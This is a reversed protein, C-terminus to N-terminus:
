CSYPGAGRTSFPSLGPVSSAGCVAGRLSRRAEAEAARKPRSPHLPRHRGVPHIMNETNLQLRHLKKIVPCFANFARSQLARHAAKQNGRGDPRPAMWSGRRTCIGPRRWPVWRKAASKRGEGQLLLAWPHQSAIVGGWNSVKTGCYCSDAQFLACPAVAFHKEWRCGQLINPKEEGQREKQLNQSRRSFTAASPRPGQLQTISGAWSSTGAKAASALLPQVESGLVFSGSCLALFHQRRRDAEGPGLIATSEAQGLDEGGTHIQKTLETVARVHAAWSLAFKKRGSMIGCRDSHREM